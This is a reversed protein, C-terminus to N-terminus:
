EMIVAYVHIQEKRGPLEVMGLDQYRFLDKTALYTRESVLIPTKMIKTAKELRAAVNVTDGIATYEIRKESGVNGLIADGTHVGIGMQLLPRDEKRWKEDLKVLAKQMEIAALVAHEEQKPDELPAGFEAMIGDGIFKDLTGSHAFIVEIMKEFYENLLTVVEEPSLRESLLTFQRIDSFLITVKKREGGLNLPSESKLIKDLIHSSVYSAFSQKLREREQLKKCMSNIQIGLNHFEDKTKFDCRANLNGGEIDQVVVSLTKLSSAVKKSLFFALILSFCVAASLGWLAFTLLKKLELYIDIANIDIGLVSVINGNSDRIPSFASVWLGFQDRIFQPNVSSINWNDLIYQKDVDQYATGPPDINATVIEVGYKIVNDELYLTYADFLYLDSRRNATLIRNLVSRAKLYVPDDTKMGGRVKAFLDGDMNATATSAISLTRSLVLKFVFNDVQKSFILIGLVNSALAVFLLSIYLKTRYKM